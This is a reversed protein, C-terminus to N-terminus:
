RFILHCGKISGKADVTNGNVTFFLGNGAKITNKCIHVILGTKIVPGM